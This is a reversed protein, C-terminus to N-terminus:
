GCTHAFSVKCFMGLTGTFYLKKMFVKISVQNLSKKQLKCIGIGLLM